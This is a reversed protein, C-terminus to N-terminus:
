LTSKTMKGILLCGLQNIQHNPYADNWALDWPHDALFRYIQRPFNPSKILIQHNHFKPRLSHIHLSWFPDWCGLLTLHRLILILTPIHTQRIIRGLGTPMRLIRSTPYVENAIDSKVWSSSSEGVEVHDCVKITENPVHGREMRHPSKGWGQKENKYTEM